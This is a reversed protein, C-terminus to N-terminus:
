INRMQTWVVASLMQMGKMVKDEMDPFEQTTRVNAHAHNIAPSINHKSPLSGGPKMQAKHDM